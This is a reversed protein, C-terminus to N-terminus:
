KADEIKKAAALMAYYAAVVKTRDNQEDNIADAAFEIMAGTPERPVCVTDPQQAPLLQWADEFTTGGAMAEWAPRYRELVASTDPSHSDAPELCLRLCLTLVDREITM